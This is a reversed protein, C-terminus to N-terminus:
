GIGSNNVQLRLHGLRNVWLRYELNKSCVMSFYGNVHNELVDPELFLESLRSFGHWTMPGVNDPIQLIQRRHLVLSQLQSKM